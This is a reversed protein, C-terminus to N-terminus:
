PAERVIAARFPEITKALERLGREPVGRQFLIDVLTAVVTDYVQGTIPRDYSDRVRAHQAGLRDLARQTVGLHTVQVLTATFHRQLQELDSHRFYDAIAPVAAARGYMDAVVEAWVGDRRHHNILWDRLTVGDLMPPGVLQVDVPRQPVAPRPVPGPEAVAPHIHATRSLRGREYLSLALATAAFLLSLVALAPVVFDTM